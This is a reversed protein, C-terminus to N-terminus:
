ALQEGLHCRRTINNLKVGWKKDIMVVPSGRLELYKKFPQAYKTKNSLILM